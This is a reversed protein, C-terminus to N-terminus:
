DPSAGPRLWRWCLAWGLLGLGFGSLWGLLIINVLEQSSLPRARGDLHPWATLAASVTAVGLVAAVVGHRASAPLPSSPAGAPQPTASVWRRAWWALLGLGVVSCLWQLATYWYIWFGGGTFLHRRLLPLAHVAYGDRHTFSDWVLHTVAGIDLCLLIAPLLRWSIATASRAYPHLRAYADHPLLDILPAKLLWHFVLYVALGVPLCCWILGSLSHSQARSIGIPLLFAIDPVMSGILLASFVGRGGLWRRLAPALPVVAAPHALTFPM